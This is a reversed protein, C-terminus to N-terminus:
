MCVQVYVLSLKQAIVKSSFNNVAFLRIQSTDFENELLKESVVIMGDAIDEKSIDCLQGLTNDVVIDEPGGCRTSVVPLGCSMAEILVVGFTEFESALVFVDSSHLLDKVQKRDAIGYLTVQQSAGLVNIQETLASFESGSGAIVLKTNKDGSFVSWFADILMKQNKKKDLFGINLFTLGEKNHTMKESFFDTDVINPICDFDLQFQNILLMKFPQSVAIRKKANVYVKKAFMLEKNVYLKRAFGTSHETVVYPIKYKHYIWIALDGRIFSHLHIVDPLGYKSIYKRFLFKGINFYFFDNISKMKPFAPWEIIFTEVGNVSKLSPFIKPFKRKKIINKVSIGPVALVGVKLNISALAESQEKFFVGSLPNFSNVYWSPLVLVHM